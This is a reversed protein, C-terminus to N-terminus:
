PSTQRSSPPRAPYPHNPPRPHPPPPQPPPPSPTPPPPSPPPTQSPSHASSYETPPSTTTQSNPKTKGHAHMSTNWISNTSPLMTPTLQYSLVSSVSGALHSLRISVHSDDCKWERLRLELDLFGHLLCVPPLSAAWSMRM